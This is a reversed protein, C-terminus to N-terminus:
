RASEIEPPVAVPAETPVFLRRYIVTAGVAAAITLVLWFLLQTAWAAFTVRRWGRYIQELRAVLTKARTTATTTV